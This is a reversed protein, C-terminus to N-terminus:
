LLAFTTKSVRSGTVNGFIAATSSQQQKTTKQNMAYGHSFFTNVLKVIKYLGTNWM